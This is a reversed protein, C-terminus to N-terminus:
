TEFHSALLISVIVCIYLCKYYSLSFFQSDFILIYLATELFIKGGGGGGGRRQRRGRGEEAEEGEGGRGGGGGKRRRRGRCGAGVGGEREAEM